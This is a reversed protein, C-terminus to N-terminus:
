VQEDALESEDDGSIAADQMFWYGLCTVDAYITDIQMKSMECAAKVTDTKGDLGRSAAESELLGMIWKTRPVYVHTTGKLDCLAAWTAATETLKRLHFLDNQEKVRNINWGPSQIVLKGTWPQETINQELWTQIATTRSPVRDFKAPKDKRFLCVFSREHPILAIIFQRTTM